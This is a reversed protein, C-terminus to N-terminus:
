LVDRHIRDIIEHACSTGCAPVAVGWERAGAGVRVTLWSTLEDVSTAVRECNECTAYAVPARKPDIVPEGIPESM